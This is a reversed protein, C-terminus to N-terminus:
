DMDNLMEQLLKKREAKSKSEIKRFEMNGIIDSVRYDDIAGYNMITTSIKEHGLNQSIAKLQEPTTAYKQAETSTFHRFSHPYFYDIGQQEARKKFIKRMAGADKWFEKNIGKATFSHKTKSKQEVKTSPFFPDADKFLKEEKLFRYWDLVIDVLKQDFNFLATIIRKTYKTKVGLRPDQNVELKDPNFCGIPLSTIASDRMGSLATFVILAKDRRDIENEVEFDCLKKIQELTPYKVPKPTRAKRSDSKSLSLYKVDSPSVKSKYGSQGSLWTFFNNLHRLIHYQTSINLIKGTKLSKHTALWKKFRQAIKEDFEGYDANKIFDEYKWLAKEVENITLESYGEAGSLYNLYQRKIKENRLKTKAM